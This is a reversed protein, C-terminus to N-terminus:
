STCNPCSHNPPPTEAMLIWITTLVDGTDPNCFPIGMSKANGQNDEEVVAGPGVWYTAGLQSLYGNIGDITADVADLGGELFAKRLETLFSNLLATGLSDLIISEQPDRFASEAHDLYRQASKGKLSKSNM